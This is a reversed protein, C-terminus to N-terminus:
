EAPAIRKARWRSRQSLEAMGAVHCTRCADLHPDNGRWYARSDGGFARRSELPIRPWYFTFSPGSEKMEMAYLPGADPGPRGYRDEVTSLVVLTGPPLPQGARYASAAEPSVWTRIWRSGHAPSKVPEPHFPDLAAYDLARLPAKAEVDPEVLPVPPNAVQAAPPNVPTVPRVRNSHALRYGSEGGLLLVASWILGLVLALFGLSEHDRRFRSMAWLAAASLVLASAGLLAHRFLLAEIGSGTAPLPLLRHAPILGLLRASAFGSLVAGLLGIFGAWGLYRCVMWWPRIGRGPRQSALLALPLLLGSAVPLHSLLAHKLAIWDM